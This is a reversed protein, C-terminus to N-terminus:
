LSACCVSFLLRYAAFLCLLCYVAFLKRSVALSSGGGPHYCEGVEAWRPEDYVSSKNHKQASHLQLLCTVSVLCTCSGYMWPLPM